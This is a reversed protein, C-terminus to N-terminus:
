CTSAMFMNPGPAADPNSVNEIKRLARDQPIAAVTRASGPFMETLSSPRPAKGAPYAIKGVPFRVLADISNGWCNLVNPNTTSPPVAWSLVARIRAIKGAEAGARHASLDVPLAAIYCLDDGDERAIDHVRVPVTGLYTFASMNDWDAWFAVYEISGATRLDGSYGATQKIRLAAVFRERGTAGELAVFDLQEFTVDADKETLAGVTNAWDIKLASFEAMKNSVAEDHVASALVAGHVDVYGFRHAPIRVEKGNYLEALQPLTLPSPEPTPIPIPPIAARRATASAPLLGEVFMDELVDRLTAPSPKVPIRCDLSNGWAVPFTPGTPVYQWSLIARVLPLVPDESSEAHPPIYPVSASYSIPMTQGSGDTGDQLDHVPIAVMGAHEFGSGTDVYFRIYEFSGPTRHDGLYGLPQKIQIVAHLVELDANYGVYTLEEFTTDSAPPETPTFKIEAFNGFHNHNEAILQSFQLRDACRKTQEASNEDEKINAM